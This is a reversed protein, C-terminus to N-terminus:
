RMRPPAEKHKYIKVTEHEHASTYIEHLDSAQVGATRVATAAVAGLVFALAAAAVVVRRIGSTRPKLFPKLSPCPMSFDKVAGRRNKGLIVIFCQYWAVSYVM